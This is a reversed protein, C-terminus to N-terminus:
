GAVPHASRRLRPPHISQLRTGASQACHRFFSPLPFQAGHVAVRVVRYKELRHFDSRYGRGVAEVLYGVRTAHGLGVRPHAGRKAGGLGLAAPAHDGRSSCRDMGGRVVARQRECAQPVLVIHTRVRQHGLRYVCVACEGRDFEPMAARRYHVATRADRGIRGRTNRPGRGVHSEHAVQTRADHIRAIDTIHDAPLDRRCLARALGTEVDDIDIGAHAIQAIFEQQRLVVLAGIGITAANGVPHAEYAFHELSRPIRHPIGTRHRQANRELFQARFGAVVMGRLGVLHDRQEAVHGIQPIHFHIGAGGIAASRTKTGFARVFRDDLEHAFQGGLGDHTHPAEGRGIGHHRLDAAANEVQDATRPGRNGVGEQRRLDAAPALVLDAFANAAIDTYRAPVVPHRHAAGLVGRDALFPPAAPM